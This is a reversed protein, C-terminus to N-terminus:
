LGFLLERRQGFLSGFDASAALAEFGGLLLARGRNCAELGLEGPECAVRLCCAERRGVQNGKALRGLFAMDERAAEGGEFGVHEGGFLACGRQADFGLFLAIGCTFGAERQLREGGFALRERLQQDSASSPRKGIRSLKRTAGPKSRASAALRPSSRSAGTESSAGSRQRVFALESM